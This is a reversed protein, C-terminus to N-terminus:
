REAQSPPAGGGPRQLAQALLDAQLLGFIQTLIRLEALQHVANFQGRAILEVTDPGGSENDVQENRQAAEILRRGLTELEDTLHHIADRTTPTAMEVFREWPPVQRRIAM